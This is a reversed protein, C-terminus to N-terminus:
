PLAYFERARVATASAVEAVEIGHLEAVKEGVHVVNAPENKKGRKPVPALYPSDTEIMLHELPTAAVAAQLDAANGFTVIGSVSIVINRELAKEAELPGGTFCHLVTRAPVGESDLISFTDDWADRSHIVLPLEHDHALAIHEAFVPRQVERDSHEYFYDLGAEGVAVVGDEELLQALGGVGENADHPHVGVTAFVGDFNRAVEIAEISRQTTVGVTIMTSVGAARAADVWAAGDPGPPIHCHNDVWDLEAVM